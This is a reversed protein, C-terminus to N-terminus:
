REAIRTQLFVVVFLELGKSTHVNSITQGQKALHDKEIGGGLSVVTPFIRYNM